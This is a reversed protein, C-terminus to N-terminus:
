HRGNTSLRLWGGVAAKLRDLPSQPASQAAPDPEPFEGAVLQPYCHSFLEVAREPDLGIALAYSRMYGRSYIGGPWRSCEGAELSRLLSASVKTQQAVQDLTVKRKERYRRLQQGFSEPTVV